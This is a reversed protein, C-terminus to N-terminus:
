EQARQQRRGNVLVNVVDQMLRNPHSLKQDLESAPGKSREQKKGKTTDRWEGADPGSDPMKRNADSEDDAAANDRQDPLNTVLLGDAGEKEAQGPRRQNGRKSALWSL